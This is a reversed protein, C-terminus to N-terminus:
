DCLGPSADCEAQPIPLLLVNSLPDRAGAFVEARGAIAWRKLDHFFVGEYLFERNREIILSDYFENATLTDLLAPLGSRTRVTNLDTLASGTVPSSFGGNELTAEARSLLLESLRIIPIVADTRYYKATTVQQTNIVDNYYATNTNIEAISSNTNLDDQLVYREDPGFLNPTNAFINYNDLLEYNINLAAFGVGN